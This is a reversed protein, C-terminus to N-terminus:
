AHIQSSLSLGGGSQGVLVKAGIVGTGAAEGISRGATVTVGKGVTVHYGVTVGNGVM